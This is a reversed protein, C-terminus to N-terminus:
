IEILESNRLNGDGWKSVTPGLGYDGGDGMEKVKEDREEEGCLSARRRIGVLPILSRLQAYSLFRPRHTV